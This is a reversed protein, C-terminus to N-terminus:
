MSSYQKNNHSIPNNNGRWFDIANKEADPHEKVFNSYWLIFDCLGLTLSRLMYPSNGVHEMYKKFNMSSEEKEKSTHVSAGTQFVASKLWDSLQKPLIPNETNRKIKDWFNKEGSTLNEISEPQNAGLFLSSWSLNVGKSPSIIIPPLLGMKEVMHRFMYELAKRLDAYKKNYDEPKSHEKFHIPVLLEMLHYGVDASLNLRELTRFVDPYLDYEVQFRPNLKAHTKIRSFLVARENKEEGGFTTRGNKSYFRRHMLEQWDEDWENTDPILDCIDDEGQGSLVYWPITRNKLKAIKQIRSFVHSLFKEAKDADDKRYRCKADLIIADWKDYDKELEIEATEWCPFPCLDIDEQMEAELPYTETIKPDDEVWLVYIRNNRM